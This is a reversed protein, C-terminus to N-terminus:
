WIEQLALVFGPLTPEGSASEPNELIEVAANPRYIYVRRAFPDILWGLEAGERLYEELKNKLADLTDSPSRLELVFNPCLPPFQDQEQDSLVDCRSRRVWSVDPSRMAGNPLRFETSSDFVIGAGDCEAWNGFLRTLEANRHGTKGGTPPMIILDGEATREIRLDPNEQCFMFFEEDSMHQVFSGFHLVLPQIEPTTIQTSM